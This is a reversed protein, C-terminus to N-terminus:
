LRLTDNRNKWVSREYEKLSDFEYDQGLSLGNHTTNCLESLWVNQLVVINFM